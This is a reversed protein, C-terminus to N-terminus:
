QAGCYACEYVNHASSVFVEGCYVCVDRLPQTAKADGSNEGGPTFFECFCDISCFGCEKCVGEGECGCAAIEVEKVGLKEEEMMDEESRASFGTPVVVANVGHTGHENHFLIPHVTNPTVIDGVNNVAIGHGGDLVAGDLGARELADAYNLEAVGTESFDLEVVITGFHQNM